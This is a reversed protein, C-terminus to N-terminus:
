VVIILIQVRKREDGRWKERKKDEGRREKKFVLCWRLNEYCYLMRLQFTQGKGRM